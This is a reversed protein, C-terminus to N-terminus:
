RMILSVLRFLSPLSVSLSFLHRLVAFPNDSRKSNEIGRSISRGSEFVALKAWKEGRAWGKRRGKGKAKKREKKRERPLLSERCLHLFCFRYRALLFAAKKTLPSHTQTEGSSERSLLRADCAPNLWRKRCVVQSAKQKKLGQATDGPRNCCDKRTAGRNLVNLRKGSIVLSRPSPCRSNM